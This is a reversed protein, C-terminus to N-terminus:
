ATVKWDRKFAAIDKYEITQGGPVEINVPQGVQLRDVLLEIAMGTKSLGAHRGTYIATVTTHRRPTRVDSYAKAEPESIPEQEYDGAIGSVRRISTEGGDHGLVQNEYVLVKAPVPKNGLFQWGKTTIVWQRPVQHGDEKVKAVLAHFRMKTLQTRESHKLELKDADIPKGPYDSARAMAKLVRVMSNSIGYRYIKITQGCSSCHGDNKQADKELAQAQALDIM